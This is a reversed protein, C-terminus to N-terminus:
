HKAWVTIDFRYRQVTRGDSRQQTDLLKAIVRSQMATDLITQLTLDLANLPDGPFLMQTVLRTGSGLLSLHLHPPRWWNIKQAALYAGPKPTIFQYCGQDDTYTRGCGAFYPDRNEEASIEHVYQGYCNAAWMELLQGPLPDGRQNVVRGIVWVYDGSARNKEEYLGTLDYEDARIAPLPSRSAPNDGYGVALLPQTPTRAMSHTDGASVRAINNADINMRSHPPQM